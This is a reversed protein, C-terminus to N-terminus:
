GALRLTSNALMCGSAAQQQRAQQWRGPLASTNHQQQWHPM